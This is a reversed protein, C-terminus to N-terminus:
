HAPTPNWPLRGGINEQPPVAKEDLDFGPISVGEDITQHLPAFEAKGLDEVPDTLVDPGEDLGLEVEM